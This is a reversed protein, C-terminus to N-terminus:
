GNACYEPYTLLWVGVQREAEGPPTYVSSVADPDDGIHEIKRLHWKAMKRFRYPEADVNISAYDLEELIEGLDIETSTGGDDLMSDKRKKVM